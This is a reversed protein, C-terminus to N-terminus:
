PVAINIRISCLNACIQASKKIQKNEFFSEFIFLDAEFGKPSTAQYTM